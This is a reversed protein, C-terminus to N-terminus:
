KKQPGIRTQFAPSHFTKHQFCYSRTWQSPSKKTIANLTWKVPSLKECDWHYETLWDHCSRTKHVYKVSLCEDGAERDSGNVPESFTPIISRWPQTTPPAPAPQRSLHSYNDGISSVSCSIKLHLCSTWMLQREREMPSRPAKRREISGVCLVPGLVLRPAHARCPTSCKSGSCNSHCQLNREDCKWWFMEMSTIKDGTLVAIWVVRNPLHCFHNNNTNQQAM